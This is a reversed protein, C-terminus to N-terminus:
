KKQKEYESKLEPEKDLLETFRKTSADTGFSLSAM